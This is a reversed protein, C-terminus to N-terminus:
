NPLRFVGRVMDALGPYRTGIEQVTEDYTSRALDRQRTASNGRRDGLQGVTDEYQRRAEILEILGGRNVGLAKTTAASTDAALDEVRALTSANAANDVAYAALKQSLLPNAKDLAEKTADWEAEVQRKLSPSAGAAALDAEYKDKAAFYDAMGRSTVLDDFYTDLDKYDRIGLELQTRYAIDSYTGNVTGEPGQPILYAALGGKGGYQRFFEYNEQMYKAAALTAPASAADAGVTTKSGVGTPALVLENPHNAQWWAKAEEYPLDAFVKRAEDKLSRLGLIRAAFDTESGQYGGKTEVQTDYSPAAPLFFGFITSMILDNKTGVQLKHLLDAKGEPTQYKPDDLQGAAEMNALTSMVSQGLRSNDGTNVVNTLLRNITSPLLQEYWERGAGLEGNIVKDMSATFLSNSPGLFGGILKWPISILPTGSFGVPNDLSPNLFTLQSSLEGVIPLRVMNDQGMIGAFKNLVGTMLSSGPYVFHLEGTDDQELIGVSEGGHILLQGQRIIQPNDKITRGWRRLWDEQARVFAWYNRAILSFQSSVYPNDIHLFAEQEAQQLSLRKAMDDAIAPDFGEKAVLHDVFGKTNERARMYLAAVLPNRSIANIQDTVVKEYAQTMMSTYGRPFQGPGHQPNYPAYLKGLAHAPLEDTPINNALWSRDPVRGAVLEDLLKENIETKGNASRKSLAIALDASVRDAYEERARAELIPDNKIKAGDWYHFIEAQSRFGERAPDEVHTLVANRADAVALQWDTHTMNPKMSARISQVWAHAPSDPDQFRLRLTNALNEMGAGGDAEVKGWGLSKYGYARSRLGAQGLEWAQQDGLMATDSYHAQHLGARAIGALEGSVLENAYKIRDGTIAWDHGSVSMVKGLVKGVILDNLNDATWRFAYPITHSIALSLRQADAFEKNARDLEAKALVPDHNAPDKLARELQLEADAKSRTAHGLETALRDDTADRGFTAIMRRREQSAARRKAREEVTAKTYAVRAALVDKGMGYAAFNALEDIANRLGGAASTIWGLKITGMLRDMGDSQGVARVHALGRKGAWGAVAYKTALYNMERFSPIIVSHSLQDPYLAVQVDGRDTKLLSTVDFGYQQMDLAAQEGRYREMFARGAESRSLGSAHFSQELIGHMVGRRAAVDGAAYASALRAADGRNLYLRAFQEVLKGSDPDTLDIRRVNPLQTRLRRGIREAKARAVRIRPILVTKAVLQRQALGARVAAADDAADLLAQEHENPLFKGNKDAYDIWRQTSKSTHTDKAARREAWLSLKGPMVVERRAAWGSNIRLLGNTSTLHNSLDDLTEIPKQSGYREVRFLSVAKEDPVVAAGNVEPFLRMLSGYRKEMKAYIGARLAEDGAEDAARFDKSDNLFQQWGKGVRTVAKGNETRLLNQVGAQDVATDLGSRWSNPAAKALWTSPRLMSAESAGTLANTAKAVQAAKGLILTPDTFWDYAADLTGSMITFAGGDESLWGGKGPKDGEPLILRALDRGPSIHKRDVADYVNQFSASNLRKKLEASKEPSMKELDAMFQEPDHQMRMALDVDDDGYTDRVDNLDHYQSEGQHFMFAIYSATSDPDYGQALMQSDIEDNNESDLGDSLMRFPLHAVDGLVHLGDFIRDSVWNHVLFNGTNSLAGAVGDVAKEFFSRSDDEKEEPELQEGIAEQGDRQAATLNARAGADVTLKRAVAVKMAQAFGGVAQVETDSLDSSALTFALQPKDGGTVSSALSLRRTTDDPGPATV